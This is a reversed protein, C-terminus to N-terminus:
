RMSCGRWSVACVMVPDGRRVALAAAVNARHAMAKLRAAQRQGVSATLAKGEPMCQGAAEKAVSEAMLSSPTVNDRSAAEKTASETCELYRYASFAASGDLAALRGLFATRESASAIQVSLLVAVVASIARM